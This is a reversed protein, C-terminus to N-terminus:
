ECKKGPNYTLFGAHHDMRDLDLAPVGVWEVMGRGAQWLKPVCRQKEEPGRVPDLVILSLEGLPLTAFLSLGPAPFPSQTPVPLIITGCLHSETPGARQMSYCTRQIFADLGVLTTSCVTIELSLWLGQFALFLLFVQKRCGRSLPLLIFPLQPQSLPERQGRLAVQCCPCPPPTDM